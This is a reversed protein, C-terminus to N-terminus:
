FLVRADVLKKCFDGLDLEVAIGIALKLCRRIPLSKLSTVHRGQLRVQFNTLSSFTYYLFPPSFLFLSLSFSLSLSLSLATLGLEANMWIGM